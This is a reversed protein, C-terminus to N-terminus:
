PALVEHFSEVAREWSHEREVFARAERSAERIDSDHLDALVGALDEPRMFRAKFPHFDAISVVQTGHVPVVRLPRFENMPPADTTVLPMGAAQCELMQLGLGEWHSPQVCVDGEEYLEARSSRETRLDVNAPVPRALPLQTYVLFPISPLLEAADLVLDVGKRRPTLGGDSLRVARCGGTGNIFVFRRCRRRERFPLRRADVPWPVYVVDWTADHREKWDRFVQYAWRHPCIVLDVFQLWEHKPHALEWMPILAVRVGHEHARRTAQALYTLEAFVVWDLGALWPGLDFGAPGRPVFDIPCSDRPGPLTPFRPHDVALWRDVLGHRALDRNMSGVGTAANWGILGVKAARATRSGTGVARGVAEGGTAALSRGLRPRGPASPSPVPDPDPLTLELSLVARDRVREAHSVDCGPAGGREIVRGAVDLVMSAVVPNMRPGTPPWSRCCGECADRRAVHTEDATLGLIQGVLGCSAVEVGEQWEVASRHLCQEPTRVTM